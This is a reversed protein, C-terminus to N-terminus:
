SKFQKFKKLGSTHLKYKLLTWLIGIGYHICPLIKIQSAEDFYRTKIPIEEIRFGKLLTQVIIETDFVFNNSNAEFNINRLLEASYARFGSHYETLYTKLVVNEFATLLINANHKWLPMGGKLAGGKMMRSGFVADARGAKIPEILAPIATPDYQYDPHVMVIIDAGQELATKYCTKQNGGYGTNQTHQVVQIGLNKAEEITNDTSCDDVLIVENVLDRPVDSLTIKLTKAANYAPMVVFTKMNKSITRKEPVKMDDISIAKQAIIDVQDFLNVPAVLNGLRLFKLIKSFFDHLSKPLNLRTLLFNLSFFRTHSFIKKIKFNTSTLLTSLTKESFCFHHYKNIGWWKSKLLKSSASSIDPTSLYLFGNNKLLNRTKEIITKPSNLHEIVDLMVIADFSHNLLNAEEITGQTINLDFTKRAYDAAWKSLEVGHAEWGRKKAEDLFLGNACGIELIKGRRKFKEIRKLVGRCSKRRANEEKLYDLDKMEIYDQEFSNRTNVYDSFVLGCKTCKLLQRPKELQTAAIQYENSNSDTISKNMFISVFNNNGCLECTQNSSGTM